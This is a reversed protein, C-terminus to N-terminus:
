RFLVITTCLNLVDSARCLSVVRCCTSLRIVNQARIESALMVSVCTRRCSLREACEVFVHRFEDQESGNNSSTDMWKSIYCRTERCFQVTLSNHLPLKSFSAYELVCSGLGSGAILIKGSRDFQVLWSYNQHVNRPVTTLGPACKITTGEVCQQYDVLLFAREM